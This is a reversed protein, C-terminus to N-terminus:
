LAQEVGACGHPKRSQTSRCLKVKRHAANEATIAACGLDTDLVVFIYHHPDLNREVTLWYQVSLAPVYHKLYIYALLVLSNM